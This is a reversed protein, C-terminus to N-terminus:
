KRNYRSLDIKKTLAGRIGAEAIATNPGSKVGQHQQSIIAFRMSNQMISRHADSLLAVQVKFSEPNIRAIEIFNAGCFHMIDCEATYYSLTACLPSLMLQLLINKSELSPANSLAFFLFKIIHQGFELQAFGELSTLRLIVAPFICSFMFGTMFPPLFSFYKQLLEM